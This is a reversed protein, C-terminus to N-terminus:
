FAATKIAALAFRECARPMREEPLATTFRLLMDREYDTEEDVGLEYMDGESSLCETVEDEYEQEMQESDTDEGKRGTCAPEDVLVDLVQEFCQLDEGTLVPLSHVVPSWADQQQVDDCMEEEENEEDEESDSDLSLVIFVVRGECNKCFRAYTSACFTKGCKYHKCVYEQFVEGM